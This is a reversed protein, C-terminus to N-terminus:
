TGGEPTPEELLASLREGTGPRHGGVGARLREIEDAAQQM